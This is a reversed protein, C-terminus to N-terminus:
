EKRFQDFARVMGRRNRLKQLFLERNESKKQKVPDLEEERQYLEMLRGQDNALEEYYKKESEDM